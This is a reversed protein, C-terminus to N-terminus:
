PKMLPEHSLRNSQTIVGYCWDTYDVAEVLTRLEEEMNVRVEPEATLNKYYNREVRKVGDSYYVDGERLM